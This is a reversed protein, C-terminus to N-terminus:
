IMQMNVLKAPLGRLVPSIIIVYETRMVREKNM